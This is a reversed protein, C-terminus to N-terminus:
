SLGNNLENEVEKQNQEKGAVINGCNLFPLSSNEIFVLLYSASM